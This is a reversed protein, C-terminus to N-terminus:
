KACFYGLFTHIMTSVVDETPHVDTNEVAITMDWIDLYVLQDYLGVFEQKIINEYIPGWLGDLTYNTIPHIYNHPGKIAIKIDPSRKLLKQISIRTRKMQSRFMHVPFLNFHAYLNILIIDRSGAPTEDLYVFVPRSATRNANQFSMPLGHPIWVVTYNHQKEYAETYYYRKQAVPIPGIFWPGTRMTLNLRKYLVTFWQRVTSDGYMRLSRNALCKSYDNTTITNFCGRQRWTSNYFFGVPSPTTWTDRFQKRGCPASSSVTAAKVSSIRIPVWDVLKEFSCSRYWRTDAETPIPVFHVTNVRTWHQCEFGRQKPKTCYFPVGWNEATLNCIPKNDLFRKHMYGVTTETLNHVDFLCSIHKGIYGSRFKNYIFAMRERSSLIAAYIVAQGTWMTRLVGTYTGNGHDIVSGASSAQKVTDKMWVVLMDGGRTKPREKRDMLVIKVNITENLRYIQQKDILFLKSFKGSAHRNSDKLNPDNIIETDAKVSKLPLQHEVQPTQRKDETRSRAHDPVSQFKELGGWSVFSLWAVLIVVALVIVKPFTFRMTTITSFRRIATSMRSHLLPIDTCRFLSCLLM